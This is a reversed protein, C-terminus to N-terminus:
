RARFASCISAYLQYTEGLFCRHPTATTFLEPLSCSARAKVQSVDRLSLLPVENGLEAAEHTRWMEKNLSQLLRVPTVPGGPGRM